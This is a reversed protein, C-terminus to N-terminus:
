GVPAQDHAGVSVQPGGRRARRRALELPQSSRRHVHSERRVSPPQDPLDGSAHDFDPTEGGGPLSCDSRAPDPPLAPEVTQLSWGAPYRGHEPLTGLVTVYSAPKVCAMARNSTSLIHGSGPMGARLGGADSAYRTGLKPDGSTAAVEPGVYFSTCLVPCSVRASRHCSRAPNTFGVEIQSLPLLAARQAVDPPLAAWFLGM